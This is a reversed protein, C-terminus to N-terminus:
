GPSWRIAPVAATTSSRRTTARETAKGATSSGPRITPRTRSACSPRHTRPHPRTSAPSSSRSCSTTRRARQRLQEHRQRHHRRRRQGRQDPLLRDTGLRRAPRLRQLRRVVAGPDRLERHLPNQNSALRAASPQRQDPELRDRARHQREPRRDRSRRVLCHANPCGATGPRPPEDATGLVWAGTAPDWTRLRVFVNQAGNGVNGAFTVGANVTISCGGVSFYQTKVNPAAHRVRYVGAANLQPATGNAVTPNTAPHNNIMLLGTPGPNPSPGDDYIAGNGNCDSLFPQVYVNDSAPMTFSAPAATNDWQVPATPNLPDPPEKALTVTQILANTTANVLRASVCPIQGTDGVAIPAASTSAEGQLGARAHASISPSFGFLPFFLGLNAQTLRVDIMPGVNGDEDRSSCLATSNTNHGATGMDWNAGNPWNRTSNLRMHFNQPTGKTLNPVNLYQSQTFTSYAYPLNNPVTYPSGANQIPPGAYQQAVKGIADTQAATPSNFCTNGYAVSAALAAADARNQLNRSYDFFHAFDVAFSVFLALVPLWIAVMVIVAGRESEPSRHSRM